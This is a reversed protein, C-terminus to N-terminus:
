PSPYYRQLTNCADKNGLRCAATVDRQALERNGKRHHTGSREFLAVADKPKRKLYRNWLRVIEDLRQQQFLVHDLGRYSELHTPDLQIAKRYDKEAQELNGKKDYAYGRYSFADAYRPHMTLVRDYTAIAADLEGAEAQYYAVRVLSALIHHLNTAAQSDVPDLRTALVLDRTAEDYRETKMLAYGRGNLLRVGQPLIDLAETFLAIAEDYRELQVLAKAKTSLFGANRGRGLARDCFPLAKEPEEEALLECRDADVFGLLQELKPNQDTLQWDAAKRDMRRHSGGWRPEITSLYAARIGFCYPCHRLGAELTETKKAVDADLGTLIGLKVSWAETSSPHRELALDTDSLARVLVKRMAALRKKSPLHAWKEGRYHWALAIRHHARALYPAFSSPTARVWQNLRKGIQRDATDFTDLAVILWRENKFDEEAATQFSEIYSSLEDFRKERLLSQLTLKDPLDKPYGYEDTGTRGLMITGKHDSVGPLASVVPSVEPEPPGDADIAAQKRSLHTYVGGVFLALALVALAAAIVGARGSRPKPQEAEAEAHEKRCLVCGAHVEPDYALGHAECRAPKPRKENM